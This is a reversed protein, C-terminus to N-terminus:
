PLPLTVSQGAALTLYSTYQGGYSQAGTGNLGTVPVVAAQAATVTITGDSVSARVGAVNYKMRDAMKVGV